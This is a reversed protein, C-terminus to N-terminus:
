GAQPQKPLCRKAKIVKIYFGYPPKIHVFDAESAAQEHMGGIGGMSAALITSGHYGYERGIIVRKSPKGELAWFHRM